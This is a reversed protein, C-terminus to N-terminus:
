HGATTDPILATVSYLDMLSRLAPPLHQFHLAIDREHARRQCALLLSVASSDIENVGSLDLTTAPAELQKTLSELLSPTQTLTLQSGLALHKM